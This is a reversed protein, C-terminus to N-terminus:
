SALAKRSPPPTPHPLYFVRSSWLHPSLVGQSTEPRAWSESEKYKPRASYSRGKGRVMGMGQTQLGRDGGGCGRGGVGGLVEEMESAM